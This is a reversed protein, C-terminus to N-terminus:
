YKYQMLVVVKPAVRTTCTKPFNIVIDKGIAVNDVLVRKVIIVIM